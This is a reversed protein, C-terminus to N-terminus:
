IRFVGSDTASSMPLLHCCLLDYTNYETAFAVNQIADVQPAWECEGSHLHPTTTACNTSTDASVTQM